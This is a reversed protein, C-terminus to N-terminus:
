KKKEFNVVSGFLNQDAQLMAWLNFKKDDLLHKYNKKELFLIAWIIKKLSFMLIYWQTNEQDFHTKYNKKLKGISKLAFYSMSFNRLYSNKLTKTGFKKM